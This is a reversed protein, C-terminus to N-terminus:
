IAGPLVTIINKTKGDGSEVHNIGIRDLDEVGMIPSYMIDNIDLSRKWGLHMEGIARKMMKYLRQTVVDDIIPRGDVYNVMRAMSVVSEKLKKNHCSFQYRFGGSASNIDKTTLILFYTKDSAEPLAHLFYSYGELIGEGVLQNTGPLKPTELEGLRLTSKAWVKMDKSMYKAISVAWDEPFDALPVIYIDVANLGSEEGYLVPSIFGMIIAAAIMIIKM